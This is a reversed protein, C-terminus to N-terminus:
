KPSIGSFALLIGLENEVAQGLSTSIKAARGRRFSDVKQLVITSPRKAMAKTSLVTLWITQKQAIRSFPHNGLATLIRQQRELDNQKTSSKAPDMQRQASELMDDLMSELDNDNSVRVDLSACRVAYLFTLVSELREGIGSDDDNQRDKLKLDDRIRMLLQHSLENRWDTGDFQLNENLLLSCTDLVIQRPYIQLLNEDAIAVLLGRWHRLKPLVELIRQNERASKRSLLYKALITANAGDITPVSPAIREIQGLIVNRREPLLISFQRLQNLARQLNSRALREESPDNKPSLDPDEMTTTLESGDGGTFEDNQLNPFGRKLLERLGVKDDNRNLIVLTTLFASEAWMQANEEPPLQNPKVTWRNVFQLIFEDIQEVDPKDPLNNKTADFNYYERLAEASEAVTRFDEVLGARRLLREELYYKLPEIETSEMLQVYYKLQRDASEFIAKEILAACNRWNAEEFKLYNTLFRHRFEKINGTFPGDGTLSELQSIIEPSKEPFSGALDIVHEFYSQLLLNKQKEFRAKEALFLDFPKGTISQIGNQILQIKEDSLKELGVWHNLLTLGWFARDFFVAGAPMRGDPAKCNELLRATIGSAATLEPEGIFLPKLVVEIRKRVAQSNLADRDLNIMDRYGQGRIKPKRSRAADHLKPFGTLKLRTNQLSKKLADDWWEPDLSAPDVVDPENKEDPRSTFEKEENAAKKVQYFVFLSLGTGVLIIAAVIWLRDTLKREFQVQKFNFQLHRQIMSEIQDPKVGLRKGNKILRRRADGSIYTKDGLLDAIEQEVHREAETLSVRPVGIEEAVRRIINRAQVESLQYKRQGVSIAKEEIKTTLIKGPIESIKERMVKAFAKEYRTEQSGQVPPMGHLLQLAQDVVGAPMKMQRGIAQIKVRSRHNLGREEAIIPQAKRLLAELLPDRKDNKPPEPPTPESM